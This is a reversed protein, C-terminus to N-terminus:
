AHVGERRGRMTAAGLAGFVGGVLATFPLWLCVQALTLIQARGADDFKPAGEALATHHTDWGEAIAYYTLAVIPARALVGYLLNTGFLRPWAWLAALGALPWAVTMVHFVTAKEIPLALLSVATVAIAGLVGVLPAVFARRVSAPGLGARQLRRGFWFGFVPVLWVIGVLAGAGATNGGFWLAGWGQLEGVLRVATVLLTILGAILLPRLMPHPGHSM